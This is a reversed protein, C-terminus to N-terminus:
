DFQLLNRNASISQSFACSFMLKGTRIPIHPGHFRLNDISNFDYSLYFQHDAKEKMIIEPDEDKEATLEAATLYQGEIGPAINLPNM